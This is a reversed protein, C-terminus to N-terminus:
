LTMYCPLSTPFGTSPIRALPRARFLGKDGLWTSGCREITEVLYFLYIQNFSTEQGFLVVFDMFEELFSLQALLIVCCPCSPVFTFIRFSSIKKLFFYNKFTWLQDAGLRWYVTCKTGIRFLNYGCYKVSSKGELTPSKSSVKSELINRLFITTDLTSLKPRVTNSM